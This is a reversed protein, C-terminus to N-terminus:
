GNSATNKLLRGVSSRSINVHFKEEVMDVIQQRTHYNNSEVEALIQEEIDVTKRKRGSGSKIVLLESMTASQMKKKLSWLSRECLGTLEVARKVSIGIGLLVIAVLRKALTEPLFVQLFEIVQKLIDVANDCVGIELEEKGKSGKKM